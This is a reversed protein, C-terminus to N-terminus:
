QLMKGRVLRELLLGICLCSLAWGIMYGKDLYANGYGEYYASRMWEIGHVIPNFSLPYRLVEPLAHPVFLVGSTIWMFINLINYGTVWMPVAAAIIANIVGVGVGLLMSAGVAFCAQVPNVPMFDIDCASFILALIIIILGASLLEVIARAFLIDTIKVRPFVLM